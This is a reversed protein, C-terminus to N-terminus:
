HLRDYQETDFKKRKYKQLFNPNFFPGESEANGDKSTMCEKLDVQTKNMKVLLSNAESNLEDFYGGGTKGNKYLRDTLKNIRTMLSPKKDSSRTQKPDMTKNLNKKDKKNSM